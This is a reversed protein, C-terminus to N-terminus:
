NTRDTSLIHPDDEQLLLRREEEAHAMELYHNIRKGLLANMDFAQRLANRYMWALLAIIVAMPQLTLTGFILFNTIRESPVGRTSGAIIILAEEAIAAWLGARADLFFAALLVPFLLASDVSIPESWPTFYKRSDVVIVVAVLFLATLLLAGYPTGGRNLRWAFIHMPICIAITATQYFPAHAAIFAPLSLVCAALCVLLVITLARNQLQRFQDGSEIFMWWSQWDKLTKM